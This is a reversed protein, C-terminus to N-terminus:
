AENNKSQLDQNEGEKVECLLAGDRTEYKHLNRICSSNALPALEKVLEHAAMPIELTQGNSLYLRSAFAKEDPYKRRQTIRVIQAPNVISFGEDRKVCVFAM